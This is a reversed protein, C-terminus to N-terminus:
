ESPVLGLATLLVIAVAIGGLVVPAGLAGILAHRARLGMRRHYSVALIGYGTAFVVFFGLYALSMLDLKGGSDGSAMSVGQGISGLSYTALTAFGAWTCVGIVAPGLRRIPPLVTLAAVVAGVLKLVLALVNMVAFGTPYEAILEDYADSAVVGTTLLDLNVVAFGVCCVATLAAVARVGAGPPAALHSREVSVSSSTM